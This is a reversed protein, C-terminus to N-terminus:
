PNCRGCPTYGAALAADRDPFYVRNEEAPLSPCGPTHFKQSNANGIYQAEMSGPERTSDSPAVDKQTTFTIEQGDSQAVVTGQADTRYVTAGADNLRSMTEEHPHGYDNGAGCSVVAYAPMVERLFPYTTSGSSGHHGVKLVDASLTLGSALMEEESVRGADGTFLFATDGFVVRLAVSSENIDSYDTEQPALVTVEAEGLSFSEGALAIRQEVGTEEAAALVDRYMKTDSEQPSLLLYDTDVTRLVDDMAGIHDEHGHTGVAYDLHAVGAASLTDLIVSGDDNNGADILMAADGCTLLTCDAQGVDIFYVSFATNDPMWQYAPDEPLLGCAPLVPLALCLSVAGLKKLFKKM